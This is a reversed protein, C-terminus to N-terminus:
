RRGDGVMVGAIRTLLTRPVIRSGRALLRNRGGSVVSPGRGRDLAALAVRVVQEPTQRRGVSGGEGAVRFFETETAGPALALVRVGRGATEAWLAESFSLVFAKTAAYVAMSPVAQFAATSALNVIYGKGRELM